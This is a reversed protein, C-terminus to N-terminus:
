CIPFEPLHLTHSTWHLWYNSQQRNLRAAKLCLGQRSPHSAGEWISFMTITNSNMPDTCLPCTRAPHLGRCSVHCCYYTFKYNDGRTCNGLNFRKYIEKGAAPHTAWEFPVSAASAPLPGLCASINQHFPHCTSCWILLDEKLHRTHYNNYM